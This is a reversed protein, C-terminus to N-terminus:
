GARFQTEFGSGQHLLFFFEVMNIPSLLQQLSVASAADSEGTFCVGTCYDGTFNHGAFDFSRGEWSREEAAGTRKGAERTREQAAGARRDEARSREM